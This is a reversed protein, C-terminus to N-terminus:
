AVTHMHNQLYELLQTGIRSVVHVTMANGAQSLLRTESVNNRIKRAADKPFGQLLLAEYGSLRKLKGSKVYLIGHRGARLTPVQGRYLRLDSQRTDIILYDEDILENIDWKGINYKNSLYRNFTPDNRYDLERSNESSLYEELGPAPVRSPWIFKGKVPILDNRVGVFYIWERMHPVGYDLSNVVRWEVEYGAENLDGLIMALTRGGDHNVLGKVNEFIFYKVSKAKLIDILGYIISGRPDHLGKRKGVISFSQCPFGAIMLDFYPLDEPDISMLDGYNKERDGFFLRYTESAAEDIESYAVCELGISELGFRGGGIGACFDMFKLLKERWRKQGM